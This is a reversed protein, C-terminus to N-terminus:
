LPLGPFPEKHIVIIDPLLTSLPVQLANKAQNMRSGAMSGSRDLLFIVECIADDDTEIHPYLSILVAHPKDSARATAPAVVAQKEEDAKQEVAISILILKICKVYM